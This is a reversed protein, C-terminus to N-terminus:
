HCKYRADRHCYDLKYRWRQSLIWICILTCRFWAIYMVSMCTHEHLNDYVRTHVCRFWAIYMVSMCVHEHLNDYVRTHVCTSQVVAEVDNVKHACVHIYVLSFFLTNNWSCAAHTSPRTYFHAAGYSVALILSNEM